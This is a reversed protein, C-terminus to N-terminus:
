LHNFYKVEETFLFETFKQVHKIKIIILMFKLRGFAFDIPTLPLFSCHSM